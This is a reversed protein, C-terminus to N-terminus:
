QTPRGIPLDVLEMARKREAMEIAQSIAKSFDAPLEKWKGTAQGVRGARKGDLSQYFLATRGLRFLVVQTDTGNLELSSERKEISDGYGAEVQLAEMVRRFKEGLGLQYDNLSDKLFVLRKQREDPLFQLDKNVFAELRLVIEDLYPELTMRIIESKQKSKELEKIALQQKALYTQYKSLQHQLWKHRIKLNQIEALMEERKASWADVENQLQQGAQISAEVARQLTKHKAEAAATSGLSMIALCVVAGFCSSIRKYTKM